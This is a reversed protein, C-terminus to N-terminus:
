GCTQSPPPPIPNDAKKAAAAVQAANYASVAEVSHKPDKAVVQLLTNLAQWQEDNAQARARSSENSQENYAAVCGTLEYQKVALGVSLALALAAMVQVVRVAARSDLWAGVRLVPSVLSSRPTILVRVVLGLLAWGALSGALSWGYAATV